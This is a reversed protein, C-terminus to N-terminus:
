KAGAAARAKLLEVLEAPHDTQIGDVGWELLQKWCDHYDKGSEDIFLKMGAAHCRDVYEKSIAEFSPAIVDPNVAQKVKDLDQNGSTDPMPHCEPCVTALTKYENPGAYWVSRGALGHQQLAKAVVPVPAAKLDVYVGIKGECAKLIEEMTPIREDKWQPGIRSGIDFSKLEALTFDKVPGKADKTYADVQGNHVSVINGDKTERFDVEVFDCNLEIAKRYAAVTNEPIGEHSGRHAIVYVGGQKPAPLSRTEASACFAVFLIAATIRM